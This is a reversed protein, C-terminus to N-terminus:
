LRFDRRFLIRTATEALNCRDMEPFVGPFEQSFIDFAKGVMGITLSSDLRSAWEHDVQGTRDEALWAARLQEVLNKVLGAEAVEALRVNEDLKMLFLAQSRPGGRNGPGFRTFDFEAM